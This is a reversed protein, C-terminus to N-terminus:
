QGTHGGQLHAHRTVLQHFHAKAFLVEPLNKTIVTWQFFLICVLTGVRFSACALRKIVVHTRCSFIKREQRFLALVRLRNRSFPKLFLPYLKTFLAGRPQQSHFPCARSPAAFCPRVSPMVVRMMCPPLCPLFAPSTEAQCKGRHRHNSM